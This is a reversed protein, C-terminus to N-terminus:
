LHPVRGRCLCRRLVLYKLHGGKVVYDDDKKDDFNDYNKYDHANDDCICKLFCTMGLLLWIYFIHKSIGMYELPLFMKPWSRWFQTSFIKSLQHYVNCHWPVTPAPFIEALFSSFSAIFKWLFDRPIKVTFTWCLSVFINPPFVLITQKWIRKICEQYYPHLSQYQNAHCNKSVNWQRDHTLFHFLSM